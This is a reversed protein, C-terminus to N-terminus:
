HSAPGVHVTKVWNFRKPRVSMRAMVCAIVVLWHCMYLTGLVTQGFLSFWSYSQGQQRCIRAQGWIMGIFSLAISFSSVPLFVPKQNLLLSVLLDPVAATPLLYQIISFLSLDFSKQFGLRNRLLLPWYDLFRQYGGEAWRNRQHWLAIARTVGEEEVYATEAIRIDWGGLHLRFTLDLDDTITGENWGGCSKLATTRVFQGNGRLEGIGGVAVRKDQWFADFAMEASQGRTWFNLNANAIAKRVQLAGVKPVAFYPLIDRVLSKPMRADADFVGIIEGKLSPLLQNLAGSKGGGANPGRRMWHLQPFHQELNALVQPTRDSSYDDVIWVELRDAPYDIACLNKVLSEIVAEENKAAVVLSVFPVTAWELQSELDSILTQGLPVSRKLPQHTLLRLAHVAMLLTMGLILWVGGAWLHLGITAGWVSTLLIASKRRRGAGKPYGELIESRGLFVASDSVDWSEL